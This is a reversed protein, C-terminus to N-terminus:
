VTKDIALVSDEFTYECHKYLLVNYRIYSFRANDLNCFDSFSLSFLRFTHNRQAFKNLLCVNLMLM